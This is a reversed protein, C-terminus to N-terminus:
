KTKLLELAIALLLCTNSFLLFSKAEVGTPAIPIPTMSLRSILGVIISVVALAILIVPVNKM